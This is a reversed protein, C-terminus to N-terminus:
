HMGASEASAAGYKSRTLTAKGKKFSLLFLDDFDNSPIYATPYEAIGLKRIVLPITNSHGIILIADNLDHHAKLKNILDTCSTDSGYHVTDIGLQIRVSDGTNQTRRYETVYIRKIKKGKLARMLDGARKNGNPTLLPDDGPEKEAHRVLYIEAKNGFEIVQANASIVLSSLLLIFLIRM